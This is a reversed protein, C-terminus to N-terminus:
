TIAKYINKMILLVSKKDFVSVAEINHSGMSIRMKSDFSLKEIKEVYREIDNPSCSFGTIGDVSYDVIGHVNSTVLPLGTAMAELAALGLGERHSPFVFIDSAKCIEAIDNRFGLFRVKDAINLLESLRKLYEEKEGVGCIVYIVNSVNLKPLAKIITEHNKNENLEGVSLLVIAEETLGLERRKELKGVNVTSFKQLDLGIGPIYEISEAKFSKRARVYDEKNITILVDTYKALWKEVPYYVLWNVIPAGKYFHFGHATYFVKTGNKRFDKVTWRGFASAVPTHFHIIDYDNNKVIEKLQRSALLNLKSFPNRQFPIDYVNQVVVDLDVTNKYGAIDVTYGMDQLLRIHPILFAKITTLITSCILVKKM